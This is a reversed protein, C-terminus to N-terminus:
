KYPATHYDSLLFPAFIWLFSWIEGRMDSGQNGKKKKKQCLSTVPSLKLQCTPPLCLLLPLIHFLVRCFLLFCLFHKGGGWYCLQSWVAVASWISCTAKHNWVVKQEEEYFWLPWALGWGLNYIHVAASCAQSNKSQHLYLVGRVANSYRLYM